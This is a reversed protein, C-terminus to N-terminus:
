PSRPSHRPCRPRSPRMRQRPRPYHSPFTPVTALTVAGTVAPVTLSLVPYLRLRDWTPSVGRDRLVTASAPRVTPSARHGRNCAGRTLLRDGPCGVEDLGWQRTGRDPGEGEVTPGCGRGPALGLHRDNDAAQHTAWEDGGTVRGCGCGGDQCPWIGLAARGSTITGVRASGSHRPTSTGSRIVTEWPSEAENTTVSLSEDPFGNM